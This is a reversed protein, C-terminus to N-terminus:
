TTALVEESERGLEEKRPPLVLCRLVAEKIDPDPNVLVDDDALLPVGSLACFLPEGEQDELLASCGERADKAVAEADELNGYDEDSVEGEPKERADELADFATLWVEYAKLAEEREKLFPILSLDITM